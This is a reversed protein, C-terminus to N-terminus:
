RVYKSAKAFSDIVFIIFIGLFTYLIIEEIVNNTKEDKQEELLAIIYNLKNLLDQNKENRNYMENYPVSSYYTDNYDNVKEQLNIKEYRQQPLSYNTPKIMQVPQVPPLPQFDGLKDSSTDNSFSEVPNEIPDIKDKKHIKDYLSSMDFQAKKATKNHPNTKEKIKAIPPPNFQTKSDLNNNNDFNIESYQLTM